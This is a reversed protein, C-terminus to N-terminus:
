YHLIYYIDEPNMTISCRFLNYQFYLVYSIISVSLLWELLAHILNSFTDDDREQIHQTLKEEVYLIRKYVSYSQFLLLFNISIYLNDKDMELIGILSIYSIAMNIMIYILDIDFLLIYLMYVYYGFSLDYDYDYTLYYALLSVVIKFYTEITTSYIYLKHYLKDVLLYLLYLCKFFYILQLLNYYGRCTKIEPSMTHYLYTSNTM